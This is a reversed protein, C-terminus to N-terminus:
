AAGAPRRLKAFFDPVEAARWCAVRQSDFAAPEPYAEACRDIKMPCRPHFPCGPPPALPSPPEGQLRIRDRRHGPDAIPTASFLARTYPHRPAGFVAKADGEEVPRGLYMVMVTDAIHRVVSLDHSIFIYALGFEDQLDAILNLIQARISLDLASVPEDLVLIKPNLMLARAIAIRQRQGGSFMHPYRDAHEPRLGVRRIMDVAKDRRAAASLDTNLLLPEELMAAVTKRPNLSGYPNQFVIQVSRRLEPTPRGLTIDILAGGIELEGATPPEIMTLVRALTSKGCGSEGVVALTKGAHIELSAGNLAKVIAPPRFAGRSVEYHRTLNRAVLIPATM